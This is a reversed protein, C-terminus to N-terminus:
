TPDLTVATLPIVVPVMTTDMEPRTTVSLSTAVTVLELRGTKNRVYACGVGSGLSVGVNTGVATGLEAGVSDCVGDGDYASLLGVGSGVAKGLSDGDEAGM